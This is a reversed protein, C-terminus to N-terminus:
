YSARFREEVESLDAFRVGHFRKAFHVFSRLAEINNNNRGIVAPHLLLVMVGKQERIELLNQKWINALYTDDTDNPPSGMELQHTGRPDSGFWDSPYAFPIELTKNDGGSLYFPYPYRDLSLDKLHVPPVIGSNASANSITAISSDVDIGGAGVRDNAIWRRLVDLTNAVGNDMSRHGDCWPVRFSSGSRGFTQETLIQQQYIDYFQSYLDTMNFLVHDTGPTIDLGTTGVHRATHNGLDFDKVCEYGSPGGGKSNTNRKESLMRRTAVGEIMFTAPLGEQELLEAVRCSQESSGETDFTLVVVVEAGPDFWDNVPSPRSPHELQGSTLDRFGAYEAHHQPLVDHIQDLYYSAGDSGRVSLEERWAFGRPAAYHYLWFAYHGQNPIGGISYDTRPMWDEPVASWFLFQTYYGGSRWPWGNVRDGISAWQEPVAHEWFIFRYHGQNNGTQAYYDRGLTHDPGTYASWNEPVAHLWLAQTYYGGSTWKWGQESPRMAWNNPVASSWLWYRYYGVNLLTGLRHSDPVWNKAVAGTWFFYRYYGQETLSGLQYSRPGWNDPVARLWFTQTYYGGRSWPWSGHNNEMAWNEPIAKLWLTQTFYGGQPWDWDDMGPMMDWNEPVARNWFISQVNFACGSNIRRPVIEQWFWDEYTPSSRVRNWWSAYETPNHASSLNCALQRADRPIPYPAASAGSGWMLLLPVVFFLLRKTLVQISQVHWERRRGM